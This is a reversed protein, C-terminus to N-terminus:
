SEQWPLPTASCPVAPRGSPSAPLQAPPPTAPQPSRPRRAAPEARPYSAGGRPGPQAQLLGAAGGVRRKGGPAVRSMPEASVRMHMRWRLMSVLSRCNVLHTRERRPRPDRSSGPNARVRGGDGMARQQLAEDVRQLLADLVPLLRGVLQVLIVCFTPGPGAAGELEGSASVQDYRRERARQVSYLRARCSILFFDESVSFSCFFARM